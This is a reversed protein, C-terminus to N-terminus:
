LMTGTGHGASTALLRTSVVDVKQDPAKGARCLKHVPSLPTASSLSMRPLQDHGSWARASRRWLIGVSVAVPSMPNMAESTRLKLTRSTMALTTSPLM